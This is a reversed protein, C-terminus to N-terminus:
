VNEEEVRDVEAEEKVEEEEEEEEAADIIIITGNWSRKESDLKCFTTITVSNHFASIQKERGRFFLLKTTITTTSTTMFGSLFSCVNSNQTRYDHTLTHTHPFLRRQGRVYIWYSKVIWMEECNWNANKSHSNLWNYGSLFLLLFPWVITFWESWNSCMFEERTCKERERERNKKQSVLTGARKHTHTHQNTYALAKWRAIEKRHEM